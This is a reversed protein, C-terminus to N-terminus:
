ETQRVRPRRHRRPGARRPIHPARRGRGSGGGASERDLGTAGTRGGAGRRRVPLGHESRRFAGAVEELIRLLDTNVFTVGETTLKEFSRIERLHTKLGLTGFLCHCERQEVRGYDGSDVNLPVKPGSQLFSTLFFADVTLNSGGLQRPRQIVGYSNSFLHVDDSARPEAVVASRHRQPGRRGKRHFLGDCRNRHHFHGLVRRPM